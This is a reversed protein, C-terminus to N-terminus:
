VIITGKRQRDVSRSLTDPRHAFYESPVRILVLALRFLFPNAKGLCDRLEQILGTRFWLVGM